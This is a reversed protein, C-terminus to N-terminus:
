AVSQTTENTKNSPTDIVKELQLVTKALQDVSMTSEDLGVNAKDDIAQDSNVNMINFDDEKLDSKLKQHAQNSL